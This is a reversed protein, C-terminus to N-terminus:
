RREELTEPKATEDVPWPWESRLWALAARARDHDFYHVLAATFPECFATMWRQWKKEGVIALRDIDKFYKLDFKIDDWLAKAEWGHFRSMEFLVRIKGHRAVLREFQPIFRKYDEDSLKETVQVELLEGDDHEILNIPM